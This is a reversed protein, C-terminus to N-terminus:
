KPSWPFQMYISETTYFYVTARAHRDRRKVASSIYCMSNREQICEVISHRAWNIEKGDGARRETGFIINAPLSCRRSYNWSDINQRTGAFNRNTCTWTSSLSTLSLKGHHILGQGSPYLWTYINAMTYLGRDLYTFDHTYVNATTYLGRDLYSFNHTYTQRPPYAGTWIPLTMHIYTQRPTYAGTWIPLWTYINATTSLGRDRYTTMHIYTKNSWPLVSSFINANGTDPIEKASAAKITISAWPIEHKSAIFIISCMKGYDGPWHQFFSRHAIFLSFKFTLKKGLWSM